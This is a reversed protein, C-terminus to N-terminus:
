SEETMIVKYGLMREAEEIGSQLDGATKVTSLEVGIAVLAQAVEPSLGTVIVTAGMLRSAAVTQVLHNAVKSDLSPVGTVDMVVVRARRNAIGRLLQETLQRARWSDISGVIPLILLGPRLQLVPTSLERIAEQQEEITRLYVEMALGVDFFVLKTLSLLLKLAGKPDDQYAEFFRNAVNRLYWNYMGLYVQFPLGVRQHVAGIRLRNKIYSDGYEGRTLDLFYDRQAGKVRHLVEPDQFFARGQPFSLLYRYFDEIVPDAYQQAMEHAGSLAAIDEEGFELFEKRARIEEADMDLGTRHM